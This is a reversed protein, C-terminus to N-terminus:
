GEFCERGDPVSRDAPRGTAKAEGRGDGDRASLMLRQLEDVYAPGRLYPLVTKNHLLPDAGPPLVREGDPTGPIPSFAAVKAQLGLHQVYRISAEVEALPQDPLGALIYAGLEAPGFGAARLHAVATEFAESSVKGGTSRQRGPDLTELSLRVMAFGARRMMRAVDHTVHRAHLGNPTHFRVRLGCALVGELLPVLGHDADVLLADDYFAFDAIGRRACAKIEALVDDPGRRALGPQLRYSACYTCRYPCGWSTLLAAYPRRVLDHAPAPWSSPDSYREPRSDGGSVQDALRLAAAVGPGAIVEDAGSNRRAHEPCLTAYVGGLAVPRGPWQARIRHIAEVVGPYWYSMGSTVLVLDPPTAAALASDFAEVAMGYRGFRRPVFAVAPPKDLCTKPLKGRGDPRAPMPEAWTALCDLVTVRYGNDRLAAALILLGLPEIWLNFAAFDYIWPNVLLAHGKSDVSGNYRRRRPTVFGPSLAFGGM